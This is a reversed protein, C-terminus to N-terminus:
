DLDRTRKALASNRTHAENISLLIDSYEITQQMGCASFLQEFESLINRYVYPRTDISGSTQLVVRDPSVFGDDTWIWTGVSDLGEKLSVSKVQWQLYQYIKPLVNPRSRNKSTQQCSSVINKLQQIVDDLPPEKNWGFREALEPYSGDIIPRISDILGMHTSVDRPAALCFQSLYWPYDDTDNSPRTRLYPVFKLDELKHKLSKKVAKMTVKLMEPHSNLFTTLAAGQRAVKSPTDSPTDSPTNTEEVQRDIYQALHLIDDASLQSSSLMGLQRLKLLINPQCFAGAPFPLLNSDQYLSRLVRDDPDYVETPLAHGDRIARISKFEKLQKRLTADARVDYSDLVHLVLKERQVDSYSNVHPLLHDRCVELDTLQKGDLKRALEKASSERLDLLTSALPVCPVHIVGLKVEKCNVWAASESTLTPMTEFINLAKLTARSDEKMKHPVDCLYRRLIRRDDESLDDVRESFNPVKKLAQLFGEVTSRAIYSEALLSYRTHKSDHLLIVGILEAIRVMVQDLDAQLLYPQTANVDYLLNGSRLLPLNVYDTARKQTILRWVNSLWDETLSYDTDGCVLNKNLGIPRSVGALMNRIKTPVSAVDVLQLGTKGLHVHIM